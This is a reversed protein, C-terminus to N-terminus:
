VNIDPVGAGIQEDLLGVLEWEIVKGDKDWANDPFKVFAAQAIVFNDGRDVDMGTLTNIGWLAPNAKQLNYMASLQSNLASTKLVSLKVRGLNTARLTHMLQGGAGVTALDKDEAMSTSVGEEAIGADSGISFAGGPGSIAGQFSLFSYATM